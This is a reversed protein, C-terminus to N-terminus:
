KTYTPVVCAHACVSRLRRTHAYNARCESPHHNESRAYDLVVLFRTLQQASIELLEALLPVAIEVNRAVAVREFKQVLEATVEIYDKHIYLKRM